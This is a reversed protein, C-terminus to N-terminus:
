RIIMLKGNKGDVSSDVRWLYVGSAAPDGHATKADWAERGQSLPSGADSHHIERVLDGALTYIKITCESPLGVFNL